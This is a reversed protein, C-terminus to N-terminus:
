LLRVPYVYGLARYLNAIEHRWAKAMERDM